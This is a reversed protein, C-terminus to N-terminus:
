HWAGAIPWAPCGPMEVVRRLRADAHILSTGTWLGTHYTLPSPMLLLADGPQAQGKRRTLLKDLESAWIDSRNTRCPYHAAIDHQKGFLLAILGVCDVGDNTRGDLRFPRGVWARAKIIRDEAQM